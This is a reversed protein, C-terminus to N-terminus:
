AKRLAAILEDKSMKSRGSIDRDKALEKLEALTKNELDDEDEIDDDDDDEDDDDDIEEDIQGSKLAQRAEDHVPKLEREVEQEVDRSRARFENVLDQREDDDLSQAAAPLIQEEEEQVHHLVADQLDAVLAFFEESGPGQADAEALLREIEDHESKAEGVQDALKKENTLREYVTEQEARAHTTLKVSVEHWLDILQESKGAAIVQELLQAVEAHEQHLAIFLPDSTSLEVDEDQDGSQSQKRDM